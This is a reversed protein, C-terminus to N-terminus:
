KLFTEKIIDVSEKTLVLYKHNLIDLVNLNRAEIIDTKQINGASKIVNDDKKATAFISSKGKVKLATLINEFIKTKPETINLADLVILEKDRVKGSLAMFLAKRKMKKPLIKKYSKENRPGFTVGGGVWLPSRSSGARAKGTGKQKHPKKGGGSVESRDKTHACSQRKNSALSVFIQHVLADKIEMEFIEKPLELTGVKEGKQNYTDIKM